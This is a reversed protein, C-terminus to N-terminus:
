GAGAQRHRGRARLSQVKLADREREAQEAREILKQAESKDRDEFEKLKLRLTEAEKNAKRLAAQVEKPLEVEPRAQADPAETTSSPDTVSEAPNNQQDAM